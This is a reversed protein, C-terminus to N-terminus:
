RRGYPLLRDPLPKVLAAISFAVNPTLAAVTPNAFGQIESGTAWIYEAKLFPPLLSTMLSWVKSSGPLMGFHPMVRGGPVVLLYPQFLRLLKPETVDRCRLAHSGQGEPSRVM